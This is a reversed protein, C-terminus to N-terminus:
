SLTHGTLRATSAETPQKSQDMRRSAFGSGSVASICLALALAGIGWRTFAFPAVFAVDEGPRRAAM